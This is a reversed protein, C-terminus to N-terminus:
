AQVQADALAERIAEPIRVAQGSRYDVWVLTADAEAYVTEADGERYFRHRLKLSSNGLKELEITVEVTAPYVLEKRYVCGTSALVPGIGDPDIGHGLEDLWEVRIQELYRFYYTNNLHGVADMDGWRMSITKRDIVPFFTEM